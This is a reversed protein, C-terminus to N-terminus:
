DTNHEIEDAIVQCMSFLTNYIVDDGYIDCDINNEDIVEDVAKGLELLITRNSELKQWIQKRITETYM